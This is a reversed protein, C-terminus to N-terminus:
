PRLLRRTADALLRARQEAGLTLLEDSQVEVSVVTDTPIAALLDTVPLMGHGPALRRHRAEHLADDRDQEDLRGLDDLDLVRTSTADCLQLWGVRDADVLATLEEVGAGVRVHHLVDVVVRCGTQEAMALAATPTPPTTWAMYELGITLGFTSAVEVLGAVAEGTAAPDGLDSVVLMAGAGLEATVELLRRAGESPRGDDPWTDDIRIVETDHIMLGLDAAMRRLERATAPDAPAHEGSARLGIGDFGTAAAAEFLTRADHDLLCGAALIVARRRTGHETDPNTSM